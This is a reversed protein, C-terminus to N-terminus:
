CGASCGAAAPQEADQAQRPGFVLFVAEETSRSFYFNVASQTSAACVALEAIPSLESRWSSRARWTTVTISLYTLNSSNLQFILSYQSLTCLPAKAREQRAGCERRSKFPM